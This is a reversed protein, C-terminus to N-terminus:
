VWHLVINLHIWYNEQKTHSHIPATNKKTNTFLKLCFDFVKEFQKQWVLTSNWVNEWVYVCRKANQYIFISIKKTNIRKKLHIWYIEKM